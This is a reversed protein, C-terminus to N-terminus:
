APHLLESRRDARDAVTEGVGVPAVEVRAAADARRDPRLVPEVPRVAVERVEVWVDFGPLHELRAREDAEDAGGPVAGPRVEVQLQLRGVGVRLLHRPELAERAGCEGPLARRSIPVHRDTSQM